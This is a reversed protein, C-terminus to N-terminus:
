KALLKQVSALKKDYSKGWSTINKLFAKFAKQLAKLVDIASEDLKSEPLKVTLGPAKAKVATTFEKVLADLQETLEPTMELLKSVVAEYDVKSGDKQQKSVTATLSVTEVVRTYIEDEADFLELVEDKIRKNLEEKVASVRELRTQMAKYQKVFKTMRGSEIGELKVIVRDVVGKVAKNTYTLKPDRAEFLENVKM